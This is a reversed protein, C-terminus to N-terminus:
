ATKRAAEVVRGLNNLKHRAIAARVAQVLEVPPKFAPVVPIMLM